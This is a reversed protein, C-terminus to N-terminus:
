KNIQKSVWKSAMERFKKELERPIDVSVTINDGYNKKKFLSELQEKRDYSPKLGKLLNDTIDDKHTDYFWKQMDRTLGCLKYASTQTIKDSDLMEGFEDILESNIRMWYQVTRLKSGSDVAIKQAIKSGKMGENALTRHLFKTNKRKEAVTLERAFNTVKIIYKAQEETLGERVIANIKLFKDDQTANYIRQFSNTRRHGALVMYEEGSFNYPNEKDEVYLEEIESKKKRWVIIPTLLGEDAITHDLEYQKDASGVSYNNWEDNFPAPYLASVPIKSVQYDAVDRTIIEHARDFTEKRDENNKKNVEENYLNNVIDVKQKKVTKGSSTKLAM